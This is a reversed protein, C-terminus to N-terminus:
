KIIKWMIEAWSKSNCMQPFCRLCPSGGPFCIRHPCVPHQVLMAKQNEVAAASVEKKLLAAGERGHTEM